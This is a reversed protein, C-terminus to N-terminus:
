VRFMNLNGDIYVVPSLRYVCATIHATKPWETRSHGKRYNITLFLLWLLICDSVASKAGPAAEQRIRRFM